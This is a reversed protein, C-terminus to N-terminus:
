ATMCKTLDIFASIRLKMSLCDSYMNFWMLIFNSLDMQQEFILIGLEDVLPNLSLLAPFKVPDIFSHM